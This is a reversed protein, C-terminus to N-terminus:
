VYGSEAPDPLLQGGVGHNAKEVSIERRSGLDNAPIVANYVFEDPIGDHGKPGVREGFPFGM